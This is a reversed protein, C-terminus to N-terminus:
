VAQSSSRIILEKEQSLARPLFFFNARKKAQALANKCPNETCLVPIAAVSSRDMAGGIRTPIEFKFM